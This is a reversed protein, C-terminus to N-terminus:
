ADDLEMVHAVLRAHVRELWAITEEMPAEGVPWPQVEAEDWRAQGLGFAYDDYMVKCGGVHLAISEITREGGPPASRWMSTDVSRLNALLSQSENTDRIGEGSFAEDLLYVLEDVASM